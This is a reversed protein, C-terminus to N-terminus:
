NLSNIKSKPAAIHEVCKGNECWKGLGCSTGEAAGVSTAQCV